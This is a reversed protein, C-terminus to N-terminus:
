TARQPGVAVRTTSHGDGCGDTTLVRTEDPSVLEYVRNRWTIRRSGASAILLALHLMGIPAVGAVDWAMDRWGHHPPHLLKRVALQRVFAKIGALAIIVAWGAFAAALIGSPVDALGLLGAALVAFMCTAGNIFNCCLIVGALWLGPACVRTIVLQRRAFQWFGAFGIADASPLLAQPVFRIGLGADRIARTLQYDDSLAGDWRKAINLSEYTERSVATSGGWCFNTKDNHMMSVSAANWASRVGAVFGGAASYWRFGTAAGLKPDDLPAVLQSLWTSDPVADSDLFVLVECRDDLRDVAALLNHVKQSRRETPGAVVRVWTTRGWDAVWRGIASYAPDDASEFTFIVDYEAYDQDRLAAVTQELKDDVGCCPLIVTAHRRAPPPNAAAHSDERTAVARAVFAYFKLGDVLAWTGQAMTLLWFGALVFYIPHDAM